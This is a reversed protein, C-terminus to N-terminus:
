NEEREHVNHSIDNLHLVLVKLEISTKKPKNKVRLHWTDQVSNRKVDTCSIKVTVLCEISLSMVVLKRQFQLKKCSRLTNDFFVFITCSELDPPSKEM